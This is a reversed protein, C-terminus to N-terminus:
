LKDKLLLHEGTAFSILGVTSPSGFRVERQAVHYGQSELERPSSVQAQAEINEINDPTSRKTYEGM